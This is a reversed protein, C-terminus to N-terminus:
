EGGRWAARLRALIGKGASLAVPFPLVFAAGAGVTEGQALEQPKGLALAHRVM